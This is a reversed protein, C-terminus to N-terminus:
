AAHTSLVELRSILPFFSLFFFFLFFNKRPGTCLEQLMLVETEGKPGKSIDSDIL